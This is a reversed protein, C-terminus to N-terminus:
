AAPELTVKFGLAELRRVARREVARRDREECYNAGLDQYTTGRSLLHYASVLIRHGVAVAAKKAGRRAALRAYLAGLYTGKSRRSAQGCCLGMDARMEAVSQAGPPRAPSSRIASVRMSFCAPQSRM